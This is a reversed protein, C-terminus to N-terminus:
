LSCWTEGHLLWTLPHPYLWVKVLILVLLSPPLQTEQSVYYELNKHDTLIEVQHWAGELFHRWEELAHIIALMEKNHINYNCKVPSLSKSYFAVPHWKDEKLQSLVAGTAFDSSDAELWFPASEDPSTLVPTETIATKLNDFAQQEPRHWHWKTDAKTLDFLPWSLASFDRIFWRYFNTFGLFSQLETKTKPVPWERVGAVKITDIKVSNESVILGLYEICTQKFECKELKLFLQHKQLIEMVQWVVSWHEELTKTFILIDDLYVVVVGGMVLERFIDNMITQFTVPSNTLGFFM